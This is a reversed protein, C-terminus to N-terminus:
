LYLDIKVVNIFLWFWIKNTFKVCCCVVFRHVISDVLVFWMHCPDPLFHHWPFCGKGSPRGMHVQFSLQKVPPPHTPHHAPSAAITHVCQIHNIHQLLPTITHQTCPPPHPPHPTSVGLMNTLKALKAPTVPTQSHATGFPMSSLLSLPKLGTTPASAPAPSLPMSSLPQPNPGLLMDKWSALSPVPATTMWSM